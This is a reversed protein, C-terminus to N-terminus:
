PDVSCGCHGSLFCADGEGIAIAHSSVSFAPIHPTRFPFYSHIRSETVLWRLRDKEATALVPFAGGQLNHHMQLFYSSRRLLREIHDTTTHQPWQIITEQHSTLLTIAINFAESDLLLCSELDFDETTTTGLLLVQYPCLSRSLAGSSFSTTKAAWHVPSGVMGKKYLLATRGMTATTGMPLRPRDKCACVGVGTRVPALLVCTTYSWVCGSGM